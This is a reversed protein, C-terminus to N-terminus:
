PATEDLVTRIPYYDLDRPQRSIALDLSLGLAFLQVGLIMLLVGFILMATHGIVGTFFVGRITLFLDIAFGILFLTIGSIGFLYLPSENYRTIFLVTTLDLFGRVFREFGYKSSGHKRPLNEVKIENIRYGRHHLLVPIFRHLEGYIHIDKLVYHRYAKFPCNFDNLKLQTTRSVVFNFIRSPVARDFAGKGRYKWGTVVDHDEIAALFKPIETPDDQLDGDMTIVVDGKARLFGASYAAAKGMNRRFSIAKVRPDSAHIKELRSFTDDRSGDDVFLIEWSGGTEDLVPATRCYLEEVNEAENYVPVLVTIDLESMVGLPQKTVKRVGKGLRAVGAKFSFARVLFPLALYSQGRYCTMTLHLPGHGVVAFSVM